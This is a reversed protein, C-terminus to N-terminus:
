LAALVARLSAMASLVNGNNLATFYQQSQATQLTKCAGGNISNMEEDSLEVLECNKLLLDM